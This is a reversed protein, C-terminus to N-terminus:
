RSLEMQHNTNQCKLRRSHHSFFISVSSPLTVRNDTVEFECGTKKEKGNFIDLQSVYGLM